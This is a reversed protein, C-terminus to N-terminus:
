GRPPEPPDDGGSSASGQVQPQGAVAARPHRRQEDAAVVLGSLGPLDAGPHELRVLVAGRQAVLGHQDAGSMVAVDQLDLQARALDRVHLEAPQPEGVGSVDLVEEGSGPDQGVRGVFQGPEPQEPQVLADPRRVGATDQLGQGRVRVARILAGSPILGEESLGDLRRGDFDVLGSPRLPTLTRGYQGLLDLSSTANVQPEDPLDDDPGLPKETPHREAYWRAVGAVLTDKFVLSSDGTRLDRRFVNQGTIIADPYSHDDDAVYLEDFAGDVRAIRMPVGRVRIGAPGTQVWYSSDGAEIIFDSKPPVPGRASERCGTFAAASLLLAASTARSM